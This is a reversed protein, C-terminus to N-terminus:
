AALLDGVHDAAAGIAGRGRGRRGRVHFSLGIALDSPLTVTRWVPLGIRRLFSWRAVSAPRPRFRSPRTEVSSSVGETRPMIALTAWMTSITDSYAGSM